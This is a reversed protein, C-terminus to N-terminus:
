YVGLVDLVMVPCVKSSLRPHVFKAFKILLQAIGGEEDTQKLAIIDRDRVEQLFLRSESRVLPKNGEVWNKVSEYSSDSVSNLDLLKGFRLITEDQLCM